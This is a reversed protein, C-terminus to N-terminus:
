AFVLTSSLGLAGLLGRIEDAYIRNMVIIESPPNQKLEAPAIIRHGTIAIYKGQKMPNVDVAATIETGARTLNLFMTGKSGAGWVVATRGARRMEALRSRWKALKGTFRRHFGVIEAAGPAEDGAGSDAGSGAPGSYAGLFQGSYEESVRSAAFGAGRLLRALSRPCFYSFHEYILDWISLDRFAFLSNPVEFFVGCTDKSCLEARLSRLFERPEAVHELTQRCCVLDAPIGGHIKGFTKRVFTVKYGEGLVLDPGTHAPDFGVGESKSERCISELFGGDGCGIEVVWGRHLRLGAVLRRVLKETYRVYCPSVDLPNHYAPDYAALEPRFAQNWVHGCAPCYVLELEGVAAGAAERPSGLLRNCFVPVGRLEFFPTTRREECIPCRSQRAEPNM